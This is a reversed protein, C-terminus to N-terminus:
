MKETISCGIPKAHFNKKKKFKFCIIYIIYIAYIYKNLMSIEFSLELDKTM